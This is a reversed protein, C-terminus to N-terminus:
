YKIKTKLNTLKNAIHGLTNRSPNMRGSVRQVKEVQIVIDKGM